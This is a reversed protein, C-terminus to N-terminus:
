GRKLLSLRECPAAAPKRAEALVDGVVSAPLM